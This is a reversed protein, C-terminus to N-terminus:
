KSQPKARIIRDFIAAVAETHRRAQNPKHKAAKLNAVRREENAIIHAERKTTEHGCAMCQILSDSGGDFPGGFRDHKCQPCKTGDPVYVPM